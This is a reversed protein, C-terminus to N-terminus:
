LVVRNNGTVTTFVPRKSQIKGKPQRLGLESQLVGGCLSQYRVARHPIVCSRAAPCLLLFTFLLQRMWTVVSVSATRTGDGMRDLLCFTLNQLIFISLM